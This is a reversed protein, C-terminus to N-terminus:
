LFLVRLHVHNQLIQCSLLYGDRKWLSHIASTTSKEETSSGKSLIRHMMITIVNFCLKSLDCHAGPPFIYLFFIEFM